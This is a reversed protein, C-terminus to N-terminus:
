IKSKCRCRHEMHAEEQYHAGPEGSSPSFHEQACPRNISQEGKIHASMYSTKESKSHVLDLPHLVFHFSLVLADRPEDILARDSFGSLDQLSQALM